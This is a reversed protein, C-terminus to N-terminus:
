FKDIHELNLIFVTVGGADEVVPIATMGVPYRQAMFMSANRYITEKRRGATQKLIDLVQELHEDDTGIMVTTSQKKLFGGTSSLLTVFYGNKNLESVAEDYDDGQMVAMILKGSQPDKKIEEEVRKENRDEASEQAQKREEM